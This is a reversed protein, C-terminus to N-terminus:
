RVAWTFRRMLEYATDLVEDLAVQKGEAAGLPVVNEPWRVETPICTRNVGIAELAYGDPFLFNIDSLMEARGAVGRMEVAWAHGRATVRFAADAPTYPTLVVDWRRLPSLRRPVLTAIAHEITEHGSLDFWVNGQLAWIPDTLVAFDYEYSRLGSVVAGPELRWTSAIIANSGASAVLAHILDDMDCRIRRPKRQRQKIASALTMGNSGAKSLAAHFVREADEADLSSLHRPFDIVKGRLLLGDQPSFSSYTIDLARFLNGMSETHPVFCYRDAPGISLPQASLLRVDLHPHQRLVWATVLADIQQGIVVVRMM